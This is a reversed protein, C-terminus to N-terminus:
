SKIWVLWIFTRQQRFSKCESVSTRIFHTQCFSSHIIMLLTWLQWRYWEVHRTLLCSQHRKYYIFVYSMISWNEVKNNSCVECHQDSIIVTYKRIMLTEVSIQGRLQQPTSLFNVSHTVCSVAQVVSQPVHLGVLSKSVKLWNLEKITFSYLGLCLARNRRVHESHEGGVTLQTGVPLWYFTWMWEFFLCMIWNVSWVWCWLQLVREAVNLPHGRDDKGATHVSSKCHPWETVSINIILVNVHHKMYFMSIFVFSVAAALSSCLM